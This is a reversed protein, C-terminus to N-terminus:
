SSLALLEGSCDHNGTGHVQFAGLVPARGTPGPSLRGTARAAPGPGRGGPLVSHSVSGPVRARAQSARQEVGSTRREYHEHSARLWDRDGYDGARGPPSLSCM